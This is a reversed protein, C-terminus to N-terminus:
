PVHNSVEKGDVLHERVSLLRNRIIARSLSISKSEAENIADVNEGHFRVLQSVSHFFEDPFDDENVLLKTENLTITHSRLAKMLMDLVEPSLQETPERKGSIRQIEVASTILEASKETFKDVWKQNYAGYLTAEANQKQFRLQNDSIQRQVRQGKIVGWYGVLSIIASVPPSLVAALVLLGDKHIVLSVYFDHLWPM